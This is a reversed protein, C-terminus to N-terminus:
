DYTEGCKLCTYGQHNINCGNISDRNPCIDPCDIAGWKNQPSGCTPCNKSSSVPSFVFPTVKKKANNKKEERLFKAYIDSFDEEYEEM